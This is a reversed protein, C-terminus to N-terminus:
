PTFSWRTAGSVADFARLLPDGGNTAVFLTEGVLLPDTLLQGEFEAQWVPNNTASDRALLLGSQSAFYVIGNAYAPSASVPGGISDNWVEAGREVTVAHLRGTIDGFYAVEDDVAPSGWVWNAADFAWRVRGSDPDLAVLQSAFSGILITDGALVPTDAIAGSLDPPNSWLKRGTQLDLAYVSHDLSAFYVREDIILVGSWIAESLPEDSTSPFTWVESGDSIDRAYLRGDSSPVLVLDGVVAPAGVIRENGNDSLPLPGWIAAGDVTRLATIQNSFDGVIVLEDGAVVPPAYFARGREPQSPYRWRIAGSEIDLAYVAENFALYLNSGDSSMGPWSSAARFAAGACASLLLSAAIFLM